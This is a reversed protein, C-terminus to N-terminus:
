DDRDPVLEPVEEIEFIEDTMHIGTNDATSGTVNPLQPAPNGIPLVPPIPSSTVDPTRYAPCQMIVKKRPKNGASTPSLSHLHPIFTL